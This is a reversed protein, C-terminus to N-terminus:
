STISSRTFSAVRLVKDGAKFSREQRVVGENTIANKAPELECAQMLRQKFAAVYELLNVSPEEISM